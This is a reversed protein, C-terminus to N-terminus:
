SKCIWNQEYKNNLEGTSAVFRALIPGFNSATAIGDIHSLLMNINFWGHGHVWVFRKFGWVGWNGLYSPTVLKASVPL